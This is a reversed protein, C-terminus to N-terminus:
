RIWKDPGAVEPVSGSVTPNPVPPEGFHGATLPARPTQKEAQLLFTRSM